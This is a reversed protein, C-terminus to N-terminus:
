PFIVHNCGLGKKFGLQNDNTEMYKEFLNLMALEFFKSLVTNITIGRYDQFDNSKAYSGNKPVPVMLGKGFSKPIVAHELCFNFLRTVLVTLAPHAFQFHEVTLNFCDKAKGKKLDSIIEDVPEVSLPLKSLSIEYKRNVIYDVLRARGTDSIKQNSTCISAFFEAFGNAIDHPNDEEGVSKPLNNIRKFKSKWTKWFATTNKQLLSEYLSDSIATKEGARKCRIATKYKCKARKYNEFCTGSRPCSEEKWLKDQKLSEEKLINLEQDWWFKLGNVEVSPISQCESNQLMEVILDFINDVALQFDNDRSPCKDGLNVLAAVFHDKVVDLSSCNVITSCYCDFIQNIENVGLRTLHYYKMKDGHDWRTCKYNFCNANDQVNCSSVATLTSKAVSLNVSIPFHDSCNFSIIGSAQFDASM